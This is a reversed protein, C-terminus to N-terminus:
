GPYQHGAGRAWDWRLIQVQVRDGADLPGSELPILTLADAQMMTTLVGSSQTATPTAVLGEDDWSLAVRALLVRGPRKGVRATLRATRVPLYPRPDGLMTRLVPRVFELFNVMCSVPNGPLGFLPISAGSPAKLEGFALPKGPKIAVKWFAMDSFVDRVIDYDGMSVGGTTLVLDARLCRALAAELGERHDPAIGCHIPEGGAERVLAMLTHTNSSWIQGSHVPWGAEVVEDGTSLIAVRPRQAVLVSPIGLSSAMGLESPGMLRGPELVVAGEAVDGGRPRVHQGIAADSDLVAHDGETRTKEVMVVADAGAPMPAGTMIRSCTGEVVEHTPVAGAAITELVRLRGPVDQHRVAFGDMASNNWPPVDRTCVLKEALLRGHAEALSVREGLPVRAASMVRELAEVMTLM